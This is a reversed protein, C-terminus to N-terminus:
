ARPRLKRGRITTPRGQDVERHVLALMNIWVKTEPPIKDTGDLWARVISTDCGLADAITEPTWRITRLCEALREPTM